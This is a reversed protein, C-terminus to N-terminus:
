KPTGNLFSSSSVGEWARNESLRHRALVSCWRLSVPVVVFLRRGWTRVDSGWLPEM